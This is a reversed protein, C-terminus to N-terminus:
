EPSEAAWEPHHREAWGASVWGHRMGRGAEPDQLAKWIHGIVLLGFGLSFWDHVFTAGTRYALPLLGTFYMIVGTGFLVAVAGGALATNLKQGANFKGVGANGVRADRARLWRRDAPSFRNLRGLDLRYAVSFLGVLVPVPLALGGYVHVLEVVQRHGVLVALAGVYLVAATVIEIITLVGVSWHVWREARTFRRLEAPRTM